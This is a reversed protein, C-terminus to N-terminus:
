AGAWQKLKEYSMSGCVKKGTKENVFFPVGGCIENGEEDKDLENLLAANKDDHWVELREVKIGKERELQEVLPFMEHCHVCETGFFMILRSEM